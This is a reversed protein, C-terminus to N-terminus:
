RHGCVKPPHRFNHPVVCHTLSSSRPYRAPVVQLQAPLYLHYSKQVTLSQAIIEWCETASSTFLITYDEPINLKEKLLAVTNRMMEVFATGRHPMSLVGDNYADKLYDALQPYVTSPGVNFNTM